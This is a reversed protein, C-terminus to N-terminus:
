FPQNNSFNHHFAVMYVMNGHVTQPPQAMGSSSWGNVIHSPYSSQPQWLPAQVVFLQKFNYKLQVCCFIKGQQSIPKTINPYLSILDAVMTPAVTSTFFM